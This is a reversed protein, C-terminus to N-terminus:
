DFAHGHGLLQVQCCRRHLHSSGLLLRSLRLNASSIHRACSHLGCLGLQRAAGGGYVAQFALHKWQAAMTM